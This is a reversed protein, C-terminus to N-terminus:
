LTLLLGVDGCQLCLDQPLSSLMSGKYISELLILDAIEHLKGDFFIIITNNGRWSSLLKPGLNEINKMWTFFM